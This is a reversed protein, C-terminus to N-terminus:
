RPGETTSGSGPKRRSGEDWPASRSGFKQRDCGSGQLRKAEHATTPAALHEEKAAPAVPSVTVARPRAGRDRAALRARSGTPSILLRRSAPGVVGSPVLAVEIAPLGRLHRMLSGFPQELGYLDDRRSRGRRVVRRAGATLLIDICDSQTPISELGWSVKDAVYHAITSDCLLRAVVHDFPHSAILAEPRVDVHAQQEAVAVFRLGMRPLSERLQAEVEVAFALGVVPNWEITGKAPKGDVSEGPRGEDLDRHQDIVRWPDSPYLLRPIKEYLNFTGGSATFLAADFATALRAAGGTWALRANPAPLHLSAIRARIADLFKREHVAFYTSAPQPTKYRDEIRPAPKAAPARMASSGDIGVSPRWSAAAGEARFRAAFLDADVEAASERDDGSARKAAASTPAPKVQAQVVHAVEHAILERGERSTTDLQGEGMYIDGGIAVARAGHATAVDNAQPDSHLNVHNLATGTASELENRIEDPLKDPAAEIRLGTCIRQRLARDLRAFRAAIEDGSGPRYTELRKALSRRTTGDLDAVVDAFASEIAHFAGAELIRRLKTDLSEPEHAIAPRLDPTAEISATAQPAEAPPTESADPATGHAKCQHAERQSASALHELLHRRRTESLRSFAAAIPDNPRSRRLRDAVVRREAPALRDFRAKLMAEKKEFGLRFGGELPADFAVLIETEGSVTAFGSPADGLSSSSKRLLELETETAALRALADPTADVSQARARDLSRRATVLISDIRGRAQTWRDPDNAAHAERVEDLTARLDGIERSFMVIVDHAQEAPTPKPQATEARPAAPAHSAILDRERSARESVVGVEL